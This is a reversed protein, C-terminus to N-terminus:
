RIMSLLRFMRNDNDTLSEKFAYPTIEDLLQERLRVLAMWEATTRLQGRNFEESTPMPVWFEAGLNIHWRMGEVQRGDEIEKCGDRKFSFRKDGKRTAVALYEPDSSALAVAYSISDGGNASVQKSVLYMVTNRAFVENKKLLALVPATQVNDAAHPVLVHGSILAQQAIALNTLQLSHHLLKRAKKNNAVINGFSKPERLQKESLLAQNAKGNDVLAFYPHMGIVLETHNRIATHNLIGEFQSLPFSTPVAIQDLGDVAKDLEKVTLAPVLLTAIAKKRTEDQPYRENFLKIMPRVSGDLYKSVDHSQGQNSELLFYHSIRPFDADPDKPFETVTLMAKYSDNFLTPNAKFFDEKAAYTKEGAMGSVFARCVNTERELLEILIKRNYLVNYNIEYLKEMVELHQRVVIETLHDVKADLAQISEFIAKQNALVEDLKEDILGLKKMVERHRLEGVDPGGGFILGGLAGIAGLWNGSTVAKFVDAAASGKSVVEQGVEIIKPDVGLNKAFTLVQSAEQLHEKVDDAFRLQAEVVAVREQRAIETEKVGPPLKYFGSKMWDLKEKTPLKQYMASTLFELDARNEATVEAQQATKNALGKIAQTNSRVRGEITSLRKNIEEQHKVMKEAFATQRNKFEENTKIIGNINNINKTIEEEKLGVRSGILGVKADLRDGFEIIKAQMAKILSVEEDLKLKRFAPNAIFTEDFFKKAEKLSTPNAEDVALKAFNRLADATQKPKLGQSVGDDMVRSAMKELAKHIPENAYKGAKIFLSAIPNKVPILGGIEFAANHLKRSMGVADVLARGVQYQAQYATLRDRITRYDKLNNKDLLITIAKGYHNSAPGNYYVSQIIQEAWLPLDKPYDTSLLHLLEQVQEPTVEVEQTPQQGSCPLCVLCVALVVTVLAMVRIM